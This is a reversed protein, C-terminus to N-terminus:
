LLKEFVAEWTCGGVPGRELVRLCGYNNYSNSRENFFTLYFKYLFHELYENPDAFYANVTQLAGDDWEQLYYSRMSQQEEYTTFM